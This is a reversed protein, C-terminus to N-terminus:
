FRDGSYLNKKEAQLFSNYKDIMGLLERDQKIKM